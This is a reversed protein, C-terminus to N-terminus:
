PTPTPFTLRNLYIDRDTSLDEFVNVIDGLPDFRAAPRQAHAQGPDTDVRFDALLRNGDLDFLAAVIDNDGFRSDTWTVYIRGEIADVAVDPQIAGGANSNNVRFENAVPNGALDFIRCYIDGASHDAYDEWVVVWGGLEDNIPAVAVNARTGSTEQNIPFNDAPKGDAREFISWEYEPDTHLQAVIARIDWNSETWVIMFANAYDVAVAPESSNVAVLNAQEPRTFIEQGNPSFISFFVSLYSDGAYREEWTVLFDRTNFAGIAPDDATNTDGWDIRVNGVGSYFGLEQDFLSFIVADTSSGNKGLDTAYVVDVEDNADVAVDGRSGENVVWTELRDGDEEILRVLMADYYDASYNHSSWLVVMESDSQTVVRPNRNHNLNEPNVRFDTLSYLPLGPTPTITATSTPTWTATPTFTPTPSPTPTQTPTPFPLPDGNIVAALGVLDRAEVIGNGDLDAAAGQTQWELAFRFVDRYDVEGDETLDGMLARAPVCLTFIITLTLLTHKM